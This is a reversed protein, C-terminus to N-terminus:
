IKLYRIMPIVKKIQDLLWDNLLVLLLAMRVKGASTEPVIADNVREVSATHKTLSERDGHVRRDWPISAHADEPHSNM